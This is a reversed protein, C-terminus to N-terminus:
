QFKGVQQKLKEVESSSDMRHEMGMMCPMGMYRMMLMMGVICLVMFSLPILFFWWASPFFSCM